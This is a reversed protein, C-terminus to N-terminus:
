TRARAIRWEGSGTQEVTTCRRLPKLRARFEITRTTVIEIIRVSIASVEDDDPERLQQQTAISNGM